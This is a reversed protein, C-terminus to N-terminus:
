GTRTSDLRTSRRLRHSSLRISDLQEVGLGQESYPVTSFFLAQGFDLSDWQGLKGPCRLPACGSRRGSDVQTYELM